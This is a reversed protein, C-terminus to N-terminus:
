SNFKEIMDDLLILMREGLAFSFTYYRTVVGWPTM